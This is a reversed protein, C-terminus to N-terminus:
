QDSYNSQGDSYEYISSGAVTRCLQSDYFTKVITKYVPALLARFM